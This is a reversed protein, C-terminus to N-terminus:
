KNRKNNKISIRRRNTKKKRRRSKKGGSSPPQSQATPTQPQATPSKLKYIIDGLPVGSLKNNNNFLYMTTMKTSVNGLRDETLIGMDPVTEKYKGLIHFDENYYTSTYFPTNVDLIIKEYKNLNDINRLYDSIANYENVIRENVIKDKNIKDYFRKANMIKLIKDSFNTINMDTDYTKLKVAIEHLFPPPTRKVLTYLDDIFKIFENQNKTTFSSLLSM